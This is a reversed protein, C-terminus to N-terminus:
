YSFINELVKLPSTDKEIIECLIVLEDFMERGNIDNTDGVELLNQIDMCNKMLDDKNMKSISGINYLFGFYDNFKDLQQFRENISVIGKDSIPFFYENKFSNVNSDSVYTSMSLSEYGFMKKKKKYKNKKLVLIIELQQCIKIAEKKANTYGNERYGTLFVKLGVYNKLAFDISIHERQLTKSVKSIAKLVDFWIVTSLIFEFTMEYELLSKAEIQIAPIKTTNSVELLAESTEQLQEKVAKVSEYSVGVSGDLKLTLGYLYKNLIEWRETSASFITYM